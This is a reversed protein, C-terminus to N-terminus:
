RIPRYPPTGNILWERPNLWQHSSIIGRLFAFRLLKLALLTPASALVTAQDNSIAALALHILKTLHSRNIAQVRGIHFDPGALQTSRRGM